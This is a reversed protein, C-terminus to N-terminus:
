WVASNLCILGSKSFMNVGALKFNAVISHFNCEVKEQDFAGHWKAM